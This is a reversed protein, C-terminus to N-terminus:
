RAEADWPTDSGCSTWSHGAAEDPRGELAVRRAAADLLQALLRFVELPGGAGLGYRGGHLVAVRSDEALAVAALHLAERNPVIWSALEESPPKNTGAAVPIEGIQASASSSCIATPEPSCGM